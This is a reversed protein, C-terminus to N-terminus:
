PSTGPDRQEENTLAAESLLEQSLKRVSRGYKMPVYQLARQVDYRLREVENEVGAYHLAILAIALSDNRSLYGSDMSGIPSKPIGFPDSHAAGALEGKQELLTAYLYRLVLDTSDFGPQRQHHMWVRLFAEFISASDNAFPASDPMYEQKLFELWEARVASHLLVRHAYARLFETSSLKASLTNHYLSDALISDGSIARLDARREDLAVFQDRTQLSRTTDLVHIAAQLRQQRLLADSLGALAEIGGHAELAAENLQAAREYEHRDFAQAADRELKGFRRFCPHFIIAQRAYYYRFHASDGTSMPTMLSALSREWEGQLSDLPKGYEKRWNLSSYVRDFPGPGYANLLFQAFSGALVYSKQSANAAFGTFSMVQKVGPAYDLELIRAAHEELTYIGDYEPEVSMAAGETLGTSWSAYFPFVGLRRLLVHTLEHKLSELHGKSIDVESLWPKAISAVRTGVFELMSRDSPYVYIHIPPHNQPLAFRHEIDFLFWRVDTAIRDQEDDTLSGPEFYVTCNKSPEIRQSLTKEVREHSSTIGLQDHLLFLAGALLILTSLVVVRKHSANRPRPLIGAIAFILAVWVGQEVRSAWYALSLTIAPDWVIGPFYGYQWGYTFLQPNFYGALLSLFLSIAWFAAFSFIAWRRSRVIERLGLGFWGGFIASPLAIEIYFVLGDWFACNPLFPLSLVSIALPIAALTSSAIASSFIRRNLTGNRGSGGGAAVIGCVLSLALAALASYEFGLQAFLPNSLLLLLLAFVALIIAGPAYSRWNSRSVM